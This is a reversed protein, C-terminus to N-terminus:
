FVSKPMHVAATENVGVALSLQPVVIVLKGTLPLVNISPVVVTVLVALSSFPLSADHENVTVTVSMTSGVIM